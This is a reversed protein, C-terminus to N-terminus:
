ILIKIREQKIPYYIVDGDWEWSFESLKKSSTYFLPHYKKVLPIIKNAMKEYGKENPHNCIPSLDNINQSVEIYHPSPDLFHVSNVYEYIKLFEPSWSSYIFEIGLSSFMFESLKILFAQERSPGETVEPMDVLYAHEMKFYNSNRYDGVGSPIFNFISDNTYFSFRSPETMVWILFIDYEKKISNIRPLVKDVFLKLHTSNATGGAGINLVKDFGLSKGVTNPWGLEHFKKQTKLKDQLPLLTYHKGDPNINFDYCGVGETFSCGLTILLRRKM